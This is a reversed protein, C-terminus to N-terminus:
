SEMRAAAEHERQLLNLVMRVYRRTEAFPPIGGHREVADPGANYAALALELDEFRDIMKRLYRAGGEISQVPDFPDTVNMARATAPMLQMLGQAGAHSVAFPDFASEVRAVAKLLGKQLGYRAAAKKFAADYQGLDPRPDVIVGAGLRVNMVGDEFDIRARSGTQARDESGRNTVRITGDAETVVRVGAELAAPPSAVALVVLIM